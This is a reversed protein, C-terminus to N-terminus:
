EYKTLDFALKMRYRMPTTDPNTLVSLELLTVVDEDGQLGDAIREAVYWLTPYSLASVAFTVWLLTFQPSTPDISVSQIDQADLQRILMERMHATLRQRLTAVPKSDQQSTTVLGDRKYFIPTKEHLM